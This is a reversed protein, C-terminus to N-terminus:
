KSSMTLDIVDKRQLKCAVTQKSGDNLDKLTLFMTRKRTNGKRHSFKLSQVDNDFHGEATLAERCKKLDSQTTAFVPSAFLLTATAATLLSTRLTSM